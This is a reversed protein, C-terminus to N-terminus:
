AQAPSTQIVVRDPWGGLFNGALVADILEVGLIGEITGPPHPRDQALFAPRNRPGCHLFVHSFHPNRANGRTRVQAFRMWFM